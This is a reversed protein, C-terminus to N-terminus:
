LRGFWAIGTEATSRREPGYGDIKEAQAEIEKRGRTWRWWFGQPVRRIQNDPTNQSVHPNHCCLANVHDQLVRPRKTKCEPTNAMKLSAVHVSKM